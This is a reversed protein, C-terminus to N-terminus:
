NAGELGLTALKVLVYENYIEQQQLQVATYGQAFLSQLLQRTQLRWELALAPNQAKLTQFDKPVPLTYIDETFVYNETIKLRPLGQENLTCSAVAVAHTADISVHNIVYDSTLYWRVEFRDSPLGKNLGDQMEGYCNEMYTHCVANLKSLNLYGNRTELPDYTWVMLDYGREVAIAQQANKLSEGIGKSRYNEDIGLMHSCLYSKGERFGAFGYSFGVLKDDDYAGVVIGGNKVATLTQHIPIPPTGWVDYELQQVQELQEITKVERIDIM